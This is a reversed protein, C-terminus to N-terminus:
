WLLIGKANCGTGGKFCSAGEAKEQPFSSRPRLTAGARPPDCSIKHWLLVVSMLMEMGCIEM